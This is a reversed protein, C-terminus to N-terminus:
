TSLRKTAVDIKKFHGQSYLSSAYTDYKKLGIKNLGHERSSTSLYLSIYSAIPRGQWTCFFLDRDQPTWALMKIDDVDLTVCYCELFRPTTNCWELVFRALDNFFWKYRTCEEPVFVVGNPSICVYICLQRDTDERASGASQLSTYYHQSAHNRYPMDAAAVVTPVLTEHKDTTM